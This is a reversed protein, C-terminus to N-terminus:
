GGVVDGDKDKFTAFKHNDLTDDPSHTSVNLLAYYVAQATPGVIPTTWRIGRGTILLLDRGEKETLELVITTKSV